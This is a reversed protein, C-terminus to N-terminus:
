APVVKHGGSETACPLGLRLASLVRDQGALICGSSSFCSGCDSHGSSQWEPQRRALTVFVGAHLGVRPKTRKRHSGAGSEKDRRRENTM